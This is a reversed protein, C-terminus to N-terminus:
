PCTALDVLIPSVQVSSNALQTFPIPCSRWVLAHNSQYLAWETVYGNPPISPAVFTGSTACPIALAPNPGEASSYVPANPASAPDLYFGLYDGAVCGPTTYGMVVDYYLASLRVEQTTDSGGYVLVNGSAEYVRVAGTGTGRYGRLVYGYTGPAMGQFWIGPADGSGVCAFTQFTAGADVSVDIENVGARACDATAGTTYGFDGVNGLQDSEFAWYFIVGGDPPVDSVICGSGLTAVALALALRRM